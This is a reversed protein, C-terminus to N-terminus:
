STELEDAAVLDVLEQWLGRAELGARLGSRLPEYAREIAEEATLGARYLRRADITCDRFEDKLPDGSAHDHATAEARRLLHDPFGLEAMRSSWPFHRDFWEPKAKALARLAENLMTPEVHWLRAARAFPVVTREPVSGSRAEEMLFQLARRVLPNPVLKRVWLAEVAEDPRTPGGSRKSEARVADIVRGTRLRTRIWGGLNRIEKQQKLCDQHVAYTAALVLDACRVCSVWAGQRHTSCFHSAAERAVLSHFSEYFSWFSPPIPPEM